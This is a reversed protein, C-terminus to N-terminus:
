LLMASLLNTAILSVRGLCPILCVTIAETEVMRIFQKFSFTVILSMYDCTLMKVKHICKHMNETGRVVLPIEPLGWTIQVTLLQHGCRAGRFSWNPKVIQATAQPFSLQIRLHCRALFTICIVPLWMSM